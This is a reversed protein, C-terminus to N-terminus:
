NAAIFLDYVIAIIDIVLFFSVYILLPLAFITSIDFLRSGGNKKRLYGARIVQISLVVGILAGPAIVLWSIARNLPSRVPIIQMGSVLIDKLFVIIFIVFSAIAKKNLGVFM